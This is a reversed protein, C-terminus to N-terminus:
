STQRLFSLLPLVSFFSGSQLKTQMHGCVCLSEFINMSTKNNEQQRVRTWVFMYINLILTEGTGRDGGLGCLGEDELPRAGPRESRSSPRGPPLTPPWVQVRLQIGPTSHCPLFLLLGPERQSHQPDLVVDLSAGEFMSPPANNVHHTQSLPWWIVRTWAIKAYEIQTYLATFDSVFFLCVIEQSFCKLIQRQNKVIEKSIDSVCIIYFFSFTTLVLKASLQHWFKECQFLGSRVNTMQHTKVKVMEYVQNFVNGDTVTLFERKQHATSVDYIFPERVKWVVWWIWPKM